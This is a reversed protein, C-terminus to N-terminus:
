LADIQQKQQVKKEEHNMEEINHLVKVEIKSV